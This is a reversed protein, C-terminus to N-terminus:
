ISRTKKYSCGVWVVPILCRELPPCLAEWIVGDRGLGDVVIVATDLV